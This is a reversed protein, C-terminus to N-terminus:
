DVVQRYTQGDDMSRTNGGSFREVGGAREEMRCRPTPMLVPMIQDNCGAPDSSRPVVFDAGGGGGGRYRKKKQPVSSHATSRSLASYLMCPVGLVPATHPPSQTPLPAGM